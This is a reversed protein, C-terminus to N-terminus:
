SCTRMTNPLFASGQLSVYKLMVRWFYIQMYIEDSVSDSQINEQYYYEEM